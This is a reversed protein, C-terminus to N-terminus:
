HGAAAREFLSRALHRHQGLVVPLDATLLRGDESWWVGTSSAAPVCQFGATCFVVSGRTPRTGMASTKWTSPWSTPLCAPLWHASTMATSYARVAWRPSRGAGRPREHGGPRLGRQLLMAQRAEGLTNPVTTRHAATWGLAVSAPMARMSRIPAGIGPAHQSPCPCQRRPACVACHKPDLQRVRM